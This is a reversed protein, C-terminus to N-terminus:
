VLVFRAERQFTAESFWADGQDKVPRHAFQQPRGTAM